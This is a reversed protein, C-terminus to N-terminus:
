KPIEMYRLPTLFDMDYAVHSGIRRHIGNVNAFVMIVHYEVEDRNPDQFEGLYSGESLKKLSLPKWPSSM